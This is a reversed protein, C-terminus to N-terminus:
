IVINCWGTKGMYSWIIHVLVLILIMVLMLVAVSLKNWVLVTAVLAIIMWRILVIILRRRVWRLNLVLVVTWDIILFILIVVM